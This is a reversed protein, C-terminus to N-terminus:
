SGEISDTQAVFYAIAGGVQGMLLDLFTDFRATALVTRGILNEYVEWFLSLILVLLLVQWLKVQQYSRVLRLDRVVFLGLGAVVGGLVHVPMDLWWFRWYLFFENSIVHVVTLISAAILFYVLTLRTM